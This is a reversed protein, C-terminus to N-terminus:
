TSEARTSGERFKEYRAAIFERINNMFISNSFELARKRAISSTFQMREFNDVAALLAEESQEQFFLGTTGDIVTELAGGKGYAIVPTGCAMAELPTIGFDEEGPFILAHAGRYYSRLTEDDVNGLFTVNPGGLRRMRKEDSGTGIVVLEKGKGRFAKIALGVHKYPVLASVVLYYEGSVGEGPHFFETDVPPHIVASEAGYHRRIRDAVHRSNAIFHNVRGATRVDWRRLPNKNLALFARALPGRERMYEGYMDWVYRMPTHCFCVHLASAPTLAGKAVCHSSSLVLDYGSFDFQEILRPFFPLYSRFHRRALPWRALPSQIIRMNEIAPSMTGRHHILTHIIADPWIECFRELVREGGRMGTMWDHVLAVKM